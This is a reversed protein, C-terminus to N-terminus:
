FRWKAGLYVSRAIEGREAETGTEPHQPDLLNKGVLSLEVTETVRWGLRLDLGTYEPVEPDTLSDVWRVIADFEVTDSVDFSSRLFLQHEPDSGQHQYLAIQSAEPDLELDKRLVNLGAMLRWRPNVRFSGWTEVGTISGNQANGFQLSGSDTTTLVRLDDYDHHYLTASVSARDSPDGRYGIEYAVLEESGFGEEAPLLLPRAELERDFRSPTRVTRSVAGWLTHADTVQWALRASPLFEGGSYSSHEYKLGLTLTLDSAVAISDQAFLNAIQIDDEVPDLVFINLRNDFKERTTRYGGGWVMSHREGAQFSHRGELDFTELVDNVGLAEREARNYYGQLMASSNPSLERTWRGLLNGGANTGDFAMSNEYLDGQVTLENAGFVSDTRFGAQRGQWDDGRGSGSATSTEGMELGLGYARWAGVNGLKGGYRFAGRSDSTGGDLAALGGQTDSATRTIVNIVGNVANAGWATGGPGSIVEIREVDELMIQQEDWFVGAHLPSYLSRGDVLVLLKNSLQYLNFGRASVAYENASRQAVILNPALRLAEPLTMAGSRRIDEATIIYASAPVSGLPEPRKFVSVVEIDALAELSMERLEELTSPAALAGQARLLGFVVAVTVIVFCRLGRGSGRTEAQHHM